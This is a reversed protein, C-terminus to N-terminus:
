EHYAEVMYWFIHRLDQVLCTGFYTELLCWAHVLIELIHMLFLGHDGFYGEFLIGLIVLMYRYGHELNGRLYAELYIGYCLYAFRLVYLFGYRTDHLLIICLIV